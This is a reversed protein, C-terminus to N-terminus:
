EKSSNRNTYKLVGREIEETKDYFDNYSDITWENNKFILSAFQYDLLKKISKGNKDIQELEFTISDGETPSFSFDFCHRRNMEVCLYEATLEATLKDTPQFLMGDMGSWEYGLYKSLKWKILPFSENRKLRKLESSFLKKIKETSLESCSCLHLSQDQKCM